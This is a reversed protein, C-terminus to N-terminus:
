SFDHKLTADLKLMIFVLLTFGMLSSGGYSFFPLPIGIVPFLGTTMAVNVFVHFFLISVVGYGYVRAFLFRQREALYLIRLLLLLFTILVGLTGIFGFEEGVTCFIFDTTQEPVFGGTTQTGQLWGKGDIGGSGIAILSQRVNYEIGSPDELQGLQVLLRDQHHPKLMNHFAYDVGTIYGASLGGFVLAVLAMRLQSRLLYVVILTLASIVAVVIYKNVLMAAIFLGGFWIPVILFLWHLGHRYLMIILSFFVLASGFDNQLIILSAPLLIFLGCMLQSRWTTLTVDHGELYKAIALIAGIKAFEAPQLSFGGVRIWSKAGNIDVGIFLTLILLLLTFIFIYNAFTTYFRSDILLAVGGLLLSVGMWMFQRGYSKSFDFASTFTAPEYEAAFINVWGFAVLLLYLLISLWDIHNWFSRNM